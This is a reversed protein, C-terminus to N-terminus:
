QQKWFMILLQVILGAIITAITASFRSKIGNMSRTFSEWEEEIRGLRYAIGDRPNGNGTLIRRTTDVDDVIDDQKALIADLKTDLRTVIHELDILRTCPTEHESM